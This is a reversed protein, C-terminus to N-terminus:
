SEEKILHGASGVLLNLLDARRSELSPLRVLWRLAEEAM